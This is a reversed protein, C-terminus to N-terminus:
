RTALYAHREHPVMAPRDLADHPDGLPISRDPRPNLNLNRSSGPDPGRAGNGTRLARKGPKRRTKRRRIM